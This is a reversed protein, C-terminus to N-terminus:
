GTAGAPVIPATPTALGASGNPNPKPGKDKIGFLTALIKRAEPAATDAGFGGHEATVVVVYKFNPYPALAVYWSQDKRGLGKEATGTKGAIPIPFGKFVFTSTGNPGSAAARLGDIIAQRNQPALHIKRKARSQFEQIVRGSADEIREGLHPRLVRGGNALAAYAVALQLPSIQVDGQGVSLNVNDGPSWPRDTAKKKFLRNRWAPTPILGPQEGSIDIGTYQGLGYRRAWRQILTGNGSNYAELGLKYFFVDDSVELAKRLALTGRVAGEANRFTVGGVKLYGPDYLPTDPTILGGQLAATATILKFTSGVPYGGQIARDTLPAGNAQSRLRDYDKQKIGKSFINPDFSPNSGLGLVAGTHVDMVVFGGADGSIAQQGTRQVDLDLSLRLQHGAVPQVSDLTGRPDGAADVLVRRAGNKGRLFRDYSYEIGSQGVRDGQTVGAYRREKLQQETVEGVTGFIHAATTKYPYSRLWIPEVTVGPFSSAHESLYAVVPRSVDTKVIASSFPVARLQDRVSTRIERRTMHLVRALRTYLQTKEAQTAPLKDPAIQVVQAARSDVLTRGNRDVIKGRPAPTKVERVRNNNAQALYHDGSLVQLYWLRLFVIAFMVLAIGGLVAVRLALGPSMATGRRDSDLYM